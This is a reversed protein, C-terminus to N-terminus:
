LGADHWYDAPSIPPPRRAINNPNDADSDWNAPNDRIYQAIANWEYENRIIHEYYDRQLVKAFGSDRMANIEKTINFKFYGMLQGLTRKETPAPDDRGAATTGVNHTPAPDDRGAATTGVNHTPAPDDRGAADAGVNHTPAPHDRGAATTPPDPRSLGAGVMDTIVVIAHMHNPMVIFEDLQVRAYYNPLENWWKWVVDGFPNCQMEQNSIEGFLCERHQVCITVFYAGAQSYDYGKLRISRRHHKNPDYPM